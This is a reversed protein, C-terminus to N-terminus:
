TIKNKIKEPVEGSKYAKSLTRHYKVQKELLLIKRTKAENQSKLHELQDIKALLSQYVALPIQINPTSYSHDIPLSTPEQYHPPLLVLNDITEPTLWAPRDPQTEM